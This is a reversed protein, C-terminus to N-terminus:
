FILRNRLSVLDGTVLFAPNYVDEKTNYRLPLGNEDIVAGGAEVVICQGAATDWECTTGIRPYFDASGEAILCFKRASGMSVIEYSGVSQLFKALRHDSHLRSMAVVLSANASWARTNIREAVKDRALRYAGQGKAAYYCTRATPSVIVGLIPENGEILAINVSFGEKHAIFDKTGDLPDVLWYHRWHQRVAFAPVKDEESIVPIDPTLARLATVIIDHSAIDAQTVPTHDSKTIVKVDEEHYIRLIEDAAADAITIVDPLLLLLDDIM